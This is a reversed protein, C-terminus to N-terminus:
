IHHSYGQGQTVKVHNNYLKRSSSTGPVSKPLEVYAKPWDSFLCHTSHIIIYLPVHLSTVHCNCYRCRIINYKDHRTWHGHLTRLRKCVWLSIRWKCIILFFIYLLVIISNPKPMVDDIILGRTQTIQRLRRSRCIVWAETKIIWSIMSLRM